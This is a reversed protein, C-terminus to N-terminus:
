EDSFEDKSVVDNSMPISESSSSDIRSVLSLALVRDETAGDLMWACGIVTRMSLGGNWSRIRWRGGGM